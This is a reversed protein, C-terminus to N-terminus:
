EILQIIQRGHPQRFRLVTLPGLPSTLEGSTDHGATNKVM